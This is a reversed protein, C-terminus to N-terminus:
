QRLFDVVSSIVDTNFLLRIIVINYYGCRRGRRKVM